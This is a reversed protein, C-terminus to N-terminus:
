SRGMAKDIQDSIVAAAVQVVASMAFSRIRTLKGKVTNWNEESRINAIFEHGKPTLDAVYGDSDFFGELGSLLGSEDCQM